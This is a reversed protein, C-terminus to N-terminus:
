RFPHGERKRQRFWQLRRWKKALVLGIRLLGRGAAVSRAVKAVLGVFSEDRYCWGARPNYWYSNNALHWFLHSKFTIHFLNFGGNNMYYVSLWNQKLLFETVTPLVERSVNDPLFHAHPTILDYFHSLLELGELCHVHAVGTLGHREHLIRVARLLAPVCHRNQAAKGGLRPYESPRPGTQTGFVHLFTCHDIRASHDIGLADYSEQLLAFASDVRHQFTGALGNDHVMQWICSGLYYAAVGLDVVHLIDLCICFLTVGILTHALWLRHQPLANQWDAPTRLTAM